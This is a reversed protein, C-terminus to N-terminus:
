PEAPPPAQGERLAALRAKRRNALETMAAAHAKRDRRLLFLILGIALVMSGGMGWKLSAPLGTDMPEPVRCSAALFVPALATGVNPGAALYEMNRLFVGVIEVETGKALEIHRGPAIIYFLALPRNSIVWLRTIWKLGLPNEDAARIQPPQQVQAVIRTRRARSAAADNRLRTLAINDLRLTKEGAIQEDPLHM